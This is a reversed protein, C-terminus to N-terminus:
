SQIRTGKKFAFMNKRLAGIHMCVTVVYQADNEITAVALVSATAVMSIISLIYDSYASHSNKAKM